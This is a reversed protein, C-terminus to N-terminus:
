RVPDPLPTDLLRVPPRKQLGGGARALRDGAEDVIGSHLAGVLLRAVLLGPDGALAREKGLSPAGEGQRPEPCTSFHQFLPGPGSKKTKTTRDKQPGIPITLFPRPLCSPVSRPPPRAPPPRGRAGAPPHRTARVAAALAGSATRPCARLHPCRRSRAASGPFRRRARRPPPSRPRSRGRPTTARVRDVTAFPVPTDNPRRGAPATSALPRHRPGGGPGPPGRGDAPPPP